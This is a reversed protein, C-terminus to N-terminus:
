LALGGYRAAAAALAAHEPDALQPDRHLLEAADHRALDILRFDRVLDAVRLDSLGAQRVGNFEGAGRLRLDEEAIDFGSACRCFIELRAKAEPTAPEGLLFCYAEGGGRGVRGRLQHLQTLGFQGADEIVMTTANPVDIGVEIVTTSFLVDIDGRKFADMAADKEAPDLRGHILATRLTALPGHSLEGYHDIAAKLNERKESAEVLPCVIYAQRGRAAQDRLYQYLGDIKAAPVRRTKVPERGPPLEDILTLDMGGYVTLALTRPIPTATMHLVDPRAGKGVLAERQLVGFRHQEDVVVLGLEAFRTAEQFLAHTGVLVDIEGAAARARIARAGRRGGTIAEVRVGLPELLAGLSRTHQEALIETPALVATQRGGDAAAAIAHAAVMTKGCGVDGQLLRGMPRPAALDALIQAIARAQADTPTFPLGARLGALRSGDVPHRIGTAAHRRAARDRLVGTQVALLEGYAFRARAADAAEPEAPFHAARLAEAAPPHRRAARLRPPVPDPVAEGALDLALAIWRRLMPQTIKATLRYVPALRGMGLAEEPGDSFLEYEPNKLAPGKYEGVVGTFLAETGPKLTTGALYGRGFFTAGMEGTGDSIRIVSMGMRGRLRVSRASVVRARLTVTEGAAAAAITGLNRRDDHRRPFHFLLDGVTSVGLQALLEARADGIGPLQRVPTDWLNDAPPTDPTSM